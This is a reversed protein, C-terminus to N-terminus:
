DRARKERLLAKRIEEKRTQKTAQYALANERIRIETAAALQIVYVEGLTLKAFDISLTGFEHIVDDYEQTGTEMVRSQVEIKVLPLLLPTLLADSPDM